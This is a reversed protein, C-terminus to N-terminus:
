KLKHGCYNCFNWDDEIEKNCAICKPKTKNLIAYSIFYYIFSIIVIYAIGIQGSILYIIGIIISNLLSEKHPNPKSYKKVFRLYLPAILYLISMAIFLFILTQTFEM